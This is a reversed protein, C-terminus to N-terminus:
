ELDDRDPLLERQELLLELRALANWAAHAAHLLGFDPDIAEGRAEKMIHRLMASSYRAYGDPVSKWGDDCHKKAGYTGVKGVEELARAFGSFVLWLRTKGADLKAGPAHQPIGNPDCEHRDAHQPIGNPDCEHRDAHQAEEEPPKRLFTWSRCNSFIACQMCGRPRQRLRDFEGYCVPADEPLLAGSTEILHEDIQRPVPGFRPEDANSSM